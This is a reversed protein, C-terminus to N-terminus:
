TPYYRLDEKLLSLMQLVETLYYGGATTDGHGIVYKISVLIKEVLTGDTFVAFVTICHCKQGGLVWALVISGRSSLM